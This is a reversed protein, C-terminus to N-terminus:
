ARKLAAEVREVLAVLEFPKRLFAFAGIRAAKDGASGDATVM